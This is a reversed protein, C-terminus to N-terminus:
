FLCMMVLDSVWLAHCGYYKVCAINRYGSVWSWQDHLDGHGPVLQTLPIAHIGSNLGDCGCLLVTPRESPKLALLLTTIQTASKM